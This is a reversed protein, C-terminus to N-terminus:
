ETKFLMNEVYLDQFLQSFSLELVEIKEAIQEIEKQKEARLLCLRAGSLATNGVTEAGACLKAPLIGTRAANAINMYYGLSGAIYLNEVEEERVNCEQLLTQIGACIAAKALQFQRIDKQSLYVNETVYFEDDVLRGILVSGSEENWAGTEDILEERLLITM